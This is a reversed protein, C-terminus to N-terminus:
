TVYWGARNKGCVACYVDFMPEFNTLKALSCRLLSLVHMRYLKSTVRTLEANANRWRCEDLPTLGTVHM